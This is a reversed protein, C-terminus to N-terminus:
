FSYKPEQTEKLIKANKLKSKFYNEAELSKEKGLLRKYHMPSVQNAKMSKAAEIAEHVDMVYTGGIPILAVDLELGKMEDIFDTDGAHYLPRGNVNVIYGVWRSEKPHYHVRNAVKNYAPITELEIGMAKYKRNPEVGTVRGINVKSVLEMPVFIETRSDAVKRIDDPSFHDQHPHTILVIDAHEKGTELDFPDIYIKIDNIVLLFSAHGIWKLDDM